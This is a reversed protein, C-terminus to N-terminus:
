FLHRLYREMVPNRGAGTPGMAAVFQVDQLTRFANDRGYWGNYDHFQRLIEIPPQAGYSERQPMNVDDIFFVGKAGPIPGYM